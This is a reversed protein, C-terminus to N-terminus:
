VDKQSLKIWILKHGDKELNMLIFDTVTRDLTFEAIGCGTEDFGGLWYSPVGKDKILVLTKAPLMQSPRKTKYIADLADLFDGTAKETLIVYEGNDAHRTAKFKDITYQPTFAPNLCYESANAKEAYFVGYLAICVVAAVLLWDVTRLKFM